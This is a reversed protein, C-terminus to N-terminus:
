VISFLVFKKGIVDDTALKRRFDLTWPDVMKAEKMGMSMPLYPESDYDYDLSFVSTDLDSPKAFVRTHCLIYVIIFIVARM